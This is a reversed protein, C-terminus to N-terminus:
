VELLARSDYIPQGGSRSAVFAGLRNARELAEKADLGSAIGVVLASTFADGAGITDVVEITPSEILSFEGDQCYAAGDGGLTVVLRGVGLLLSCEKMAGELGFDIPNAAIVRYLEDHNLKVLDALRAFHIARKLDDYPPRLNIDCVKLGTFSELLGELTDRSLESRTVLSGYIMADMRNLSSMEDDSLEIEDWASPLRIDYEANGQDDLKALAVGTELIEHRKIFETNLGASKARELIQDGLLDDGICTIPYSEVGLCALHYAANFPAGGLFLGEPICDWLAEGYSAVALQNSEIM